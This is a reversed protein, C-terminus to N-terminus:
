APGEHSSPMQPILFATAYRSNSPSVGRTHTEALLAMAITGGLAVETTMLGLTGSCSTAALPALSSIAAQGGLSVMRGAVETCSTAVAVAASSTRAVEAAFWTTEEEQTFLMEIRPEKSISARM